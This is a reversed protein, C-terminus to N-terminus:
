PSPIESTVQLLGYGFLSDRGVSGGLKRTTSDLKTLVYDAICGAIGSAKAEAWLLAAAGCVFPTAMSTGSLVSYQNPPWTSYIDTGPAAIGVAPGPSSYPAHALNQGVAGVAIVEPWRAPYDVADASPALGEGDNGAAAFILVGAQRAAIIADHVVQPPEVNSGLSLNIIDARAEIAASLAQALTFTNCVSGGGTDARWCAKYVLLEADPAIGVIGVGNNPVAGIIGAVATGHADGRFGASDDDVFNRGHAAGPRLDPHGLDAGTDIVAVRAGGGRSMVHAEAVSMRAVTKQLPGYPDNYSAQTDFSQLAQVSEVRRDRALTAILAQPAGGSRVGYVLCDVGLLSIPWSAVEILGYDAALSGGAARAAEGAVYVGGGDYGRRTSAARLPMTRVPNRVTVVLYHEPVAKPAVPLMARAPLRSTATCAAVLALLIPLLGFRM